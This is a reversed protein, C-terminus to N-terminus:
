DDGDEEFYYLGVGAQKASSPRRSVRKKKSTKSLSSLYDDVNGSFNALMAQLVERAMRLDGARAVPGEVFRQFRRIANNAPHSNFAITEVLRTLGLELGIIVRENASDPVFYRKIPILRGGNIARVAGARLLERRVAGSPIDGSVSCVLESFSDKGRSFSLSKPEGSGDLYRPNTHWANLVAGPLTGHPLTLHGRKKRDGRVRSVEKRPIGTMAAVRAINTPRNRVGYDTSAAEVFANKSLDAFETYSVGCRLLIRALPALVGELVRRIREQTIDATM